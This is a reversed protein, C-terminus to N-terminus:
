EPEFGRPAVFSLHRGTRGGDRRHSFFRAGDCATCADLVEVEGRSVGARELVRLNAEVLDLHWRGERRLAVGAGLADAFRRALAEDVEYCCRRISPGIAVRVEEGGGLAAVARAAVGALTGRWGAHIAAVRAGGAGAALLPVCDATRVAVAIEPASTVLADAQEARLAELDSEARVEIV